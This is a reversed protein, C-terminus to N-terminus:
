QRKHHIYDPLEDLYTAQYQATSLASRL